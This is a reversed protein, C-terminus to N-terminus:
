AQICSDLLNCKHDSVLDILSLSNINLGLTFVLYLAHGRNHTSGSVHQVLNFSDTINLLETAYHNSPDDVHINSDGIIFIIDHNLVISSLFESFESLFTNNPKPPATFQSVASM